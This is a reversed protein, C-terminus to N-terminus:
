CPIRNSYNLSFVPRRLEIRQSGATRQYHNKNSKEPSPKWATRYRAPLRPILHEKVFAVNAPSYANNAPFEDLADRIKANRALDLSEARAYDDIIQRLSDLSPELDKYTKGFFEKVVADKADNFVRKPARYATGKREAYSRVQLERIRFQKAAEDDVKSADDLRKLFSRLQEVSTPVTKSPLTPDLNRFREQVEDLHHPINATVKDRYLRTGYEPALKSLRIRASSTGKLAADYGKKVFNFDEEIGLLEALRGNIIGNYTLETGPKASIAKHLLPFGNDASVQSADRV